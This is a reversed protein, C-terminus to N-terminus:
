KMKINYDCVEAKFWIMAVIGISETEELESTIVDEASEVEM